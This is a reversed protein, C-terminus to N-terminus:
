SWCQGLYLPKNMTKRIELAFLEESFQYGDKFNSKMVYKAPKERNMVVKMNKHSRVKEMTKGFVSNSM